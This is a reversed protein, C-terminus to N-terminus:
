LVWSSTVKKSGMHESSLERFHLISTNGGLGGLQELVDDM